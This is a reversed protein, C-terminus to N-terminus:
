TAGHWAWRSVERCRRLRNALLVGILEIAADPSSTGEKLYDVAGDQGRELAVEFLVHSLLERAVMREPVRADFIAQRLSPMAKMRARTEAIANIDRPYSSLAVDIHSARLPELVVLAESADLSNQFYQNCADWVFPPFAIAQRRCRAPFECVASIEQPLFGTPLFYVLRRHYFVDAPSPLCRRSLYEPAVLVHRAM